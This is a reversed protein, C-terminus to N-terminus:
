PNLFTKGKLVVTGVVGTGLAGVTISALNGSTIELPPHYNHILPAQAAAPIQFQDIVTAGDRVQVTVAAAPAASMSFSIGTVFHQKGTVAAQTATATANTQSNVVTWTTPAFAKDEFRPM